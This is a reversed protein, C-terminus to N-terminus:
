NPGPLRLVVSAVLAGRQPSLISEGSRAPTARKSAARDAAPPTGFLHSLDEGHTRILSEFKMTKRKEEVITALSFLVYVLCSIEKGASQVPRRTKEGEAAAAAAAVFTRDSGRWGGQERCEGFFM